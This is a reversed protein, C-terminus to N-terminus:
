WAPCIASSFFARGAAKAYDASDACFRCEPAPMLFPRRATHVFVVVRLASGADRAADRRTTDPPRDRVQRYRGLDFPRARRMPFVNVPMAASPPAVHRVTPEIVSGNSVFVDTPTAIGLFFSLVSVRTDVFVQRERWLRRCTVCSGEMVVM